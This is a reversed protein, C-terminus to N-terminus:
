YVNSLAKLAKKDRRFVLIYQRRHLSQSVGPAMTINCAPGFLTQVRDRLGQTILPVRTFLHAQEPQPPLIYYFDPTSELTVPDLSAGNREYLARGYQEFVRSSINATM